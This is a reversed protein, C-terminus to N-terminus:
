ERSVPSLGRQVEAVLGPASRRWAALPEAAEALPCLLLYGVIARGLSEDGAAPKAAVVIQPL